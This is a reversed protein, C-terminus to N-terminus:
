DKTSLPPWLHGKGKWEERARLLGEVMAETDVEGTWEADKCTRKEASVGLRDLLEGAKSPMVCQLLIGAIRLTSWALVVAPTPDRGDAKWPAAATFARNAEAVADMVGECARTVAYGEMRKEFADRMEGLGDVREGQWQTVRGLIRPSALRALLNGMQDALLRYHVELNEASYDADTPLSGGCRMLYWRMGDVGVASMAQLPDVVNGLSKSMKTRGMTWHAHSLVRRPPELGAARLLAPWHVAHFKVIDKGVVQVDAPWGAIHPSQGEPWPYGLVTLYNVLADVWVYITQDPDNPVPVGWKVRTTPRSVSLDELSDLSRLLALRQSEPEVAIILM